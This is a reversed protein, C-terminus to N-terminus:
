RLNGTGASGYKDRMMDACEPCYQRMGTGTDIRMWGLARATVAVGAKTGSPDMRWRRDWGCGQCVLGYDVYPILDTDLIYRVRIV